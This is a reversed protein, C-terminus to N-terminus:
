LSVNRGDWVLMEGGEDKDSVSTLTLAENFSLTIGKSNEPSSFTAIASRIKEYPLCPRKMKSKGDEQKDSPILPM